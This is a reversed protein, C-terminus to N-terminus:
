EITLLKYAGSKAEEAVDDPIIIDQRKLSPWADTFSWTKKGDSYYALYIVIALANVRVGFSYTKEDRKIKIM